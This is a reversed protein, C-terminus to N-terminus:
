VFPCAARVQDRLEDITGRLAAAAADAARQAAAADAAAEDRAAAAKTSEDAAIEQLVAFDAQEAALEQQATRVAAELEDKQEQM